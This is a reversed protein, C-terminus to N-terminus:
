TKCFPLTLVQIIACPPNPEGVYSPQHGSPIILTLAMFTTAAELEALEVTLNRGRLYASTFTFRRHREVSAQGPECRYTSSIVLKARLRTIKSIAMKRAPVSETEAATGLAFADFLM